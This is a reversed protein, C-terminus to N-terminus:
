PCQSVVCNGRDIPLMRKLPLNFDCIVPKAMVKSDEQISRITRPHGAHEYRTAAEEITLTFQDPTTAVQRTEDRSAAVPHTTDQM